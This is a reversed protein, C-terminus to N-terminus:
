RPRIWDIPAAWEVIVDTMDKANASSLTWFGPATGHRLTKVMIRGDALQVVCLENVMESPPLHKSWYLIWNERFVPLMSEGRIKAAVTDPHADAPAEITEDGDFALAEVTQGAGIYGMLRVQRTPATLDIGERLWLPDVALATALQDLTNGRPKDVKGDLYKSVSDYAVGSRRALEAKSWGTTEFSDRLRQKWDMAPVYNPFYNLRVAKPAQFM